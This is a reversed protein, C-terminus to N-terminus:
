VKEWITNIIKMKIRERLKNTNAWKAYANWGQYIELIEKHSIEGKNFLSIKREM